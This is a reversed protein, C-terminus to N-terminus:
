LSAKGPVEINGEARGAHDWDVFFVGSGERRILRTVNAWDRNTMGETAEDCSDYVIGVYGDEIFDHFGALIRYSFWAANGM